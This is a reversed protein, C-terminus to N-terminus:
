KADELDYHRTTPPITPSNRNYEQVKSKRFSIKKEGGYFARVFIPVALGIMIVAIMVVFFIVLFSVIQM